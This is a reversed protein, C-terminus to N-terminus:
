TRAMPPISVPSPAATGVMGHLRGGYGRPQPFSAGTLQLMRKLTERRGDFHPRGVGPERGAPYANMPHGSSVAILDVAAVAALSCALRTNPVLRDFALAALVALSLCLVAASSEPHLGIPIKLPLLGM